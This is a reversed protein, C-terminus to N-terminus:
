NGIKMLETEFILTAGGPIKPPSGRDGYGLDSPIKLKRKEGVSCFLCSKLKFSLCDVSKLGRALRKAAPQQLGFGELKPSGPTRGTCIKILPSLCPVTKYVPYSLRTSLDRGCGPLVVIGAKFLKAKAWLSSSLNDGPTAQILSLAM